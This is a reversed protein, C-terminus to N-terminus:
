GGMAAPRPRKAGGPVCPPDPDDVVAVDCGPLRVKGGAPCGDPEDINVGV